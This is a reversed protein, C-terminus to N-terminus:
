SFSELRANVNSISRDTYNKMESVRSAVDNFIRDLRNVITRREVLYARFAKAKAIEKGKETDFVDNPHCTAKGTYRGSVLMNEHFMIKSVVLHSGTGKNIVNDLEQIVSDTPLHMVAVVTRDEENIFYEFNGNKQVCINKSM